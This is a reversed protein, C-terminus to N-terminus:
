KVDGQNLIPTLSSQLFPPITEVLAALSPEITSSGSGGRGRGRGRGPGCIAGRVFPGEPGRRGGSLHRWPSTATVQATSVSWDTSWWRRRGKSRTRDAKMLAMKRWARRVLGLSMSHTIVLYSPPAGPTASSKPVNSVDRVITALIRPNRSIGGFRHVKCFRIPYCPCRRYKQKEYSHLLRLSL